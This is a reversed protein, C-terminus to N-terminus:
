QKSKLATGQEPESLILVPDINLNRYLGRALDMTLGRKGNLIESIRSPTTGLIKALDKQKLKRQYMRLEIMEILSEPKFPYQAEEYRAIEESVRDLEAQQGMTLKGKETLIGLLAEMRQNAEQYQTRNM